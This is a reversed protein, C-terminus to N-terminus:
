GDTPETAASPQLTEPDHVFWELNEDGVLSYVLGADAEIHWAEWLSGGAPVRLFDPGLPGGSDVLIAGPAGDGDLQRGVLLWERGAGDIARAGVPNERRAAVLSVWGVYQDPLTLPAGNYRLADGVVDFAGVLEPATLVLGFEPREQPAFGNVFVENLDWTKATGPIFTFEPM